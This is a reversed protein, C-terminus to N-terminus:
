TGHIRLSESCEGLLTVGGLGRLYPWWSSVWYEFVQYYLSIGKLGGSSSININQKNLLQVKDKWYWRNGYIVMIIQPINKSNERTNRSQLSLLPQRQSNLHDCTKQDRHAISYKNIKTINSWGQM